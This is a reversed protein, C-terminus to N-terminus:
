LLSCIATRVNHAQELSMGLHVLDATKQNLNLDGNQMLLLSESQTGVNLMVNQVEETQLM